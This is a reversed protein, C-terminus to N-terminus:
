KSQEHSPTLRDYLLKKPPHQKWFKNLVARLM